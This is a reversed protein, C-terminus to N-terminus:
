GHVAFFACRATLPCASCEPANRLCLGKGHARLLEHARVLGRVDERLEPALAALASRYSAAYNKAEAGFGLRLAVRLGNSELALGRPAGGARAGVSCFLLIKDAGPDGISPFKKLIRRADKAPLALVHALDPREEALALAAIDALKAARAEPHMGGLQAVALLASRPAKAISRADLGVGEELARYARARREDDVLYAVNEWLIWEFPNRPIPKAPAGYHAELDDLIRALGRSSRPM